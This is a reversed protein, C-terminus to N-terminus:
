NIRRMVDLCAEPTFKVHSEGLRQGNIRAYYSFEDNGISMAARTKKSQLGITANSDPGIMWEKWDEDNSISLVSKINNLVRQSVPLAGRGDWDEKLLALHDLKAFAKSLYKGTGEEVLRHGVREKVEPSIPMSHLFFLVDAYSNVGYAVASEQAM